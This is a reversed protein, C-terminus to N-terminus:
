DELHAHINRRHKALDSSTTYAKGCTSCKDPHEGTHSRMHVTLSGSESFAKGCTLCKHPRDGTHTRIHATLDSSQAFAKGCTSCEFPRDGSHTRMHVTLKSTTSFTKGCMTCECNKDDASGAAGKKQPPRGEDEGPVNQTPVRQRQRKGGLPMSSNHRTQRGRLPFKGM